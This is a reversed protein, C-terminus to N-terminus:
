EVYHQEASTREAAPIDAEIRRGEGRDALAALTIGNATKVETKVEAIRRSNHLSGVAATASTILTGVAVVLLAADALVSGIM